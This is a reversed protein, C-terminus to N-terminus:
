RVMDIILQATRDAAGPQGLKQRVKELRGICAKRREAHFLLAKIAPLLKEVCFDRQIFEDVLVEDAIVNVLGIHPIRILKKGILYSLPSVRYGIVFPTCFFATELTATGSAVIAATAYKMLAYTAATSVVARNHTEIFETLYGLPITPAQSVAVQLEGYMGQLRAATDLMTPLLFGIEQKRSGPLLALLPKQPDLGCDSFFNSRNKDVIMGDMLPHGVFDTKLGANRFFSVEFDFIVALHDIFSAMKQARSRGWAWVQPAIYYFVPFGLKKAKRAFRLNFGPYDILILAHPRRNKLEVLLHNFVKKFFFLHSAIEAFGIYALQDVHYFLEMGAAKMQDGGIGFLQIDPEQRRLAAVLKGGHLDGSAEGAILLLRYPM